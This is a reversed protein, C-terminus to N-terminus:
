QICAARHFITVVVVLLPHMLAAYLLVDIHHFSDLSFDVSLEMWHDDDRFGGLFVFHQLDSDNLIAALLDCSSQDMWQLDDMLLVIPQCKTCFDRLFSLFAVALRESALMLSAEQTTTSETAEEATGYESFSPILKILISAEFQLCELMDQHHQPKLQESLQGFASVIASFPSTVGTYQDYKGQLFYVGDLSKGFVHLLATKGTGSAGHVLCIKNTIDNGDRMARHLTKLEDARGYLRNLHTDLQMGGAGENQRKVKNGNAKM